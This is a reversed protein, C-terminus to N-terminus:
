SPAALIEVGLADRLGLCSIRRAMVSSISFAIASMLALPQDRALAAEPSRLRSRTSRRRWVDREVDSRAARARSLRARALWGRKDARADAAEETEEAPVIDIVLRLPFSVFDTIHTGSRRRGSSASRRRLPPGQDAGGVARARRRDSQAAAAARARAGARREVDGSRTSASCRACRGRRTRQRARRRAGAGQPRGRDVHHRRASRRSTRSRRSCARSSTACTSRCPRASTPRASSSSRRSSANSTPSSPSCSSAHRPAAVEAAHAFPLAGGSALKFWEYAVIVVAQALNLSAFAPNVPLTIIQDALAVEDNELGNRERGFMVGVSEGAASRRAVCHAGGRRCRGGAQGSRARAGHHRVCLASRRDRSRGIDYVQVEDLIRHAGSAVVYAREAPWGERPKVLRLRTLGFNAMARAAAGINDALQPEVLIVCPGPREMWDKTKDTGAGPM